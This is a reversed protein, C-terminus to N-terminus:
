GAPVSVAKRRMSSRNRIALLSPCEVFHWSLSALMVTVPIAVVLSTNHDLGPCVATVAQQVVFGYLYIGYSYDHRPKFRRLFPASALWLLGYVLTPYLLLGGWRDERIPLYIALLIAAPLWHLKVRDRFAYLLMGLLFFPVPYFSYGLGVVFFNGLTMHRPPHVAFYAFMLGAISVAVTVGARSRILGSLGALLVIAYCELEIPLTWVNPYAAGHLPNNSFVQPLAAGVGGILSLNHALWRWTGDSSYYSALTVSSFMPAVVLGIFAACAIAGPYIRLLRLAVFRRPSDQKVYSATVLLGSILFFGYVALSGFSERHTFRLMAEMEHSGTIGFSHGVMVALSAMLRILDFNNSGRELTRSLDRTGAVETGFWSTWRYSRRSIAHFATELMTM